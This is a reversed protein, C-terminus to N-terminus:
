TAHRKKLRNHYDAKKCDYLCSFLEYQEILLLVPVDTWKM